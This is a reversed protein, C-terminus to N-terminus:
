GRQFFHRLGGRGGPQRQGLDGLQVDKGYVLRALDGVVNKMEESQADLEESAAAAEEATSAIQQTTQASNEVATSIDAISRSQQQSAQTISANKDGIITASEVISDFDDNIEKVAAACESIRDVTGDLLGQTNRAAEGTRMALNKVEAAVVAFGAGAEGARAAEVAANLALLNTQFAISDITAIIQRIQGSDQEIKSINRTLEALSKLSQASRKINEKMLQESGQTLDSTQESMATLEELTSATEEIFAAQQAASDSLLQSGQSIEGSAATVQYASDRIAQTRSGLMSTISNALTFSIIMGALVAIATILAGTTETRRASALMAEESMSHARAENSVRQLLGRVEDLLPVTETLYVSRAEALGKARDDQRSLTDIAIATQHLRFHPQEMGKLLPALSPVLREAEQRGEGYLWKGLGCQHDDTQVNLTTLREDLLFANIANVWALHGTEKQALVGELSIGNIAKEANGAISQIGFHSAAGTLVFLALVTAFGMTIRQNITFEHLLQILRSDKIGM